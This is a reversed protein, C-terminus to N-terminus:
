PYYLAAHGIHDRTGRVNDVHGNIGNTPLTNSPADLIAFRRTDEAHAVLKEQATPNTLGPISVLDIEEWPRLLELAPTPDAQLASWAATRNDPQGGLLPKPMVGVEVRPRPDPGPNAPPSPPDKLLVFTSNVF